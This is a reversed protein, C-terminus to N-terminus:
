LPSLHYCSVSVAAVLQATSAATAALFLLHYVACDDSVIFSPLISFASLQFSGFVLSGAEAASSTGSLQWARLALPGSVLPGLVAVNAAAASLSPEQYGPVLLQVV